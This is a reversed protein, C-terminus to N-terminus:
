FPWLRKDSVDFKNKEVSIWFSYFDMIAIEFVIGLDIKLSPM